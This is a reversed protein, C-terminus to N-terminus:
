SHHELFSAVRVNGNLVTCPETCWEECDARTALPLICLLLTRRLLRPSLSMPFFLPTNEGNCKM